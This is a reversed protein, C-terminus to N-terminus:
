MNCKGSFAAARRLTAERQSDEEMWELKIRVKIGRKLISWLYCTRNENMKEGGTWVKYTFALIFYWLLRCPFYINRFYHMMWQRCEILIRLFLNIYSQRHGTRQRIFEKMLKNSDIIYSYFHKRDKRTNIKDDILKEM